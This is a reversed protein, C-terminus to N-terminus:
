SSKLSDVAVISDNVEEAVAEEVVEEVPASADEATKKNTPECSVLGLVVLLTLFKKM